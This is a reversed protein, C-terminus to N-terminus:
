ETKCNKQYCIDVVYIYFQRIDGKLSVKWSNKLVECFIKSFSAPELYIPIMYFSVRYLIYLRDLHKHTETSKQFLKSVKSGFAEEFLCKLLTYM